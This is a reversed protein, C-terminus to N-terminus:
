PGPGPEPRGRARCRGSGPREGAGGGAASARSAVADTAKVAVVERGIPRKPCRQARRRFSEFLGARASM